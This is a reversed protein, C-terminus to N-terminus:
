LTVPCDVALFRATIRDMVWPALIMTPLRVVESAGHRAMYRGTGPLTEVFGKVTVINTLLRYAFSEDLQVEALSTYTKSIAYLNGATYPHLWAETGLSDNLLIPLAGDGPRRLPNVALYPTGSGGVYFKVLQLQGGKPWPHQRQLIRALTSVDYTAPMQVTSM